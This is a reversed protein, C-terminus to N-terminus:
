FLSPKNKRFYQMRRLNGQQVNYREYDEDKLNTRFLWDCYGPSGVGLKHQTLFYLTHSKSIYGILIGESLSGNLRGQHHSIHMRSDLAKQKSPTLVNEFFNNKVMVIRVKITWFCYGSHEYMALTCVIINLIQAVCCLNLKQISSLIFRFNCFANGSV